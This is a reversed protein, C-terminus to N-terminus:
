SRELRVEEGEGAMLEIEDLPLGEVYTILWRQLARALDAGKKGGGAAHAAAAFFGVSGVAPKVPAAVAPSPKSISAFPAGGRADPGQWTPARVAGHRALSARIEAYLARETLPAASLTQEFVEEM